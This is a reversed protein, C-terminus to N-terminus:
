EKIEHRLRTGAAVVGNVNEALAVVVVDSHVKVDWGCSPLLAGCTLLSSFGLEPSTAPSIRVAM